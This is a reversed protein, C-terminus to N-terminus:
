NVLWVLSQDSLSFGWSQFISKCSGEMPRWALTVTTPSELAAGNKGKEKSTPSLYLWAGPTTTPLLDGALRAGNHDSATLVVTSNCHVM